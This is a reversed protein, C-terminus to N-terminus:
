AYLCTICYFRWNRIVRNRRSAHENRPMKLYMRWINVNRFTFKDTLSALIYFSTYFHWKIVLLLKKLSSIMSILLKQPSPHTTRIVGVGWAVSNLKGKLNYQSRVRTFLIFASLALLRSEVFASNNFYSNNLYEFKFEWFRSSSEKWICVQIRLFTFKIREIHWSSNKFVHVQNKWHAFKFDWFRASSGKLICVQIRLFTFKIRETHM